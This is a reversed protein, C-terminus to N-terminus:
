IYGRCELDCMMWVGKNAPVGLNDNDKLIDVFNKNTLSRFVGRELSAKNVILADEIDHGGFCTIAVIANQGAPLQDYQILRGVTSLTLPRQPTVLVHQTGDSRQNQNSSIVGLAQKGMACQYTNRPSQNHHPFPILSAVAGLATAPDIDIHTHQETATDESAALLCAAYGERADLYEIIGKRLLDDWQVSGDELGTLLEPTLRSRGHQAVLYPRVMRGSDSCVHLTDGEEEQYISVHEHIEGRRRLERLELGLERPRQTWGIPVGNLMVVNTGEQYQFTDLEEGYRERIRQWLEKEPLDVTIEVLFALNKVLGCAEGEPTDAPCVLGYQSLHIARAGSIKRVKEFQSSIRGLHGLTAIYSLRNLVQTVGSRNMAFRQFAWNGTYICQFMGETIYSERIMNCPELAAAKKASFTKQLEMRLSGVFSQFRDEFALSLYSGVLEIRKVGYFDRDDPAIHGKEALLIRRVMLGLYKARHLMNDASGQVHNLVRRNLEQKAMLLSREEEEQSTPTTTMKNDKNSAVKIKAILWMLAQKQSFIELGIAEKASSILENHIEYELGISEFIDKHAPMNLAAFIVFLPISENFLTNQVYFYGNNKFVTTKSKNEVTFSVVHCVIESEPTKEAFPVKIGGKKTIKQKEIIM